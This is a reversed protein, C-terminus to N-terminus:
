ALTTGGPLQQAKSAARAGDGAASTLGRIVRPSCLGNATEWFRVHLPHGTM